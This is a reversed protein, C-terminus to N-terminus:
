TLTVPEAPEFNIETAGVAVGLVQVIAGAATPPTETAAGAAGLFVTAGPAFGAVQDNPGEFFVTAAGGATVAAKVYGHARRATAADARRVALGGSNFLNIFDGAALAEGASVIKTDSSGSPGTPGQPGEAGTEGQPGQPGEPGIEGAEGQPGAPGTAGDAGAPGTEGQPGQPGTAGVAGAPGPDGQPGQPGAAGPTGPEGQPGTAGDVGDTGDAGDVGDAGAPGVPGPEGPEGQPGEPGVPGPSGAASVTVGFVPTEPVVVTVVCCETSM